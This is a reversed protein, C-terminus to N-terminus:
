YLTLDTHAPDTNNNNITNKTINKTVTFGTFNRSSEEPLSVVAVALRV